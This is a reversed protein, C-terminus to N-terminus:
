KKKLVDDYELKTIDVVNKESRGASRCDIAFTVTSFVHYDCSRNASIGKQIENIVYNVLLLSKRLDKICAISRKRNFNNELIYVLTSVGRQLNSQKRRQSLTERFFVLTLLLSFIVWITGKRQISFSFM